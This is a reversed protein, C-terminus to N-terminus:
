SKVNRVRGTFSVTASKSETIRRTSRTNFGITKISFSLLVKAILHIVFTILRSRALNTCVGFGFNILHEDLVNFHRNRSTICGTIELNCSGRDWLITSHYHKTDETTVAIVNVGIILNIKYFNNDTGTVIVRFANTNSSITSIRQIDM